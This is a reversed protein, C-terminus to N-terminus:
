SSWSQDKPIVVFETVRRGIKTEVYGTLGLGAVESGMGVYLAVAKGPRGCGGILADLLSCVARVLFRFPSPFLSFLGYSVLTLGTAAADPRVALAPRTRSCLPSQARLNTEMAPPLVEGESV